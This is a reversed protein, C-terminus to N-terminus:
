TAAKTRLTPQHEGCGFLQGIFSLLSGFQLGVLICLVFVEAAEVVGQHTPM